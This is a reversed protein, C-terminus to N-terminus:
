SLLQLHDVHIDQVSGDILVQVCENFYEINDRDHTEGVIIGIKIEGWSYTSVLDGTEM